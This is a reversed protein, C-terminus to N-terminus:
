SRLWVLLMEVIKLAQGVECPWARRIRIGPGTTM